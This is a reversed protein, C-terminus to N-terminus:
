CDIIAPYFCYPSSPPLSHAGYWGGGIAYAAGKGVEMVAGAHLRRANRLRSLARFDRDVVFM